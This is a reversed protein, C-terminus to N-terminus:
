SSLIFVYDRPLTLLGILELKFELTIENVLLADGSASSRWTEESPDGFLGPGIDRELTLSIRTPTWGWASFSTEGMDSFPFTAVFFLFSSQCKWCHDTLHHTQKYDTDTCKLYSSLPLPNNCKSLAFGELRITWLPRLLVHEPISLEPLKDLQKNRQGSLTQELLDDQENGLFIVSQNSYFLKCFFISSFEQYIIM